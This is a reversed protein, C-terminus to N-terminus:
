WAAVVWLDVCGDEEVSRSREIVLFIEIVGKTSGRQKGEEDKEEEHRM